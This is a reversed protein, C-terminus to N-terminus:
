PTNKLKIEETAAEKIINNIPNPSSLDPTKESPKDKPKRECTKILGIIKERISDKM